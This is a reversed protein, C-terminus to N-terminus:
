TDSIRERTERAIMLEERTHIVLVRVPSGAPAVDGDPVVSGNLGPDLRVGMFALGECAASRLTASHEGVGGTFVLVDLGGLSAALAAIAARLRDAYIELALRARANGARAAAEVERYDSSVGSIGLLGSASNLATEVDDASLGKSKQVHLLIGPDVSGSRAGMVLGEMPTFGMTTQVAAGGRVATASCGNGLHCSVIRGGGASTIEGVRAACYAHSLGHFGFRRIGWDAHWTWPLPYVKATKPLDAYFATDFCVAQPVGPLEAECAALGQLAPANHLPALDVLAAVAQRVEPTWRVTRTFREGGHVVRHGVAAIRGAASAGRDRAESLFRRVAEVASTETSSFTRSLLEERAGDDFLALKWSSSGANVALLTL